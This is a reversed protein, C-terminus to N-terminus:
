AQLKEYVIGVLEDWSGEGFVIEHAEDVSCGTTEMVARITMSTVFVSFDEKSAFEESLLIGNKNATEIISQKVTNLLQTNM